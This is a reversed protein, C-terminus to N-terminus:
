LKKSVSPERNRRGLPRRKSRGQCNERNSVPQLRIEARLSIVEKVMRLELSGFIGVDAVVQHIASGATHTFHTLAKTLGALTFELQGHPYGDFGRDCADM